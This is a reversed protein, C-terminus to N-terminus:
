SKLVALVHECGEKGCTCGVPSGLFVKFEPSGPAKSMVSYLKDGLDTINWESFILDADSVEEEILINKGSTGENSIVRAIQCHPCNCNEVAQSDIIMEDPVIFRIISGIKQLIEQPIDPANAQAPNHEMAPALGDVSSIGFHFAADGGSVFFPNQSFLALGLPDAGMKGTKPQSQQSAELELYSAHANFIADLVDQKLGPINVTEGGVLLIVLTAGKMYIGEVANWSTSIYPPLSFIKNNINKM